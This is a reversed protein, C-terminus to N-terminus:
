DKVYGILEAIGYNGNDCYHRKVIDSNKLDAFEINAKFEDVFEESVIKGCLRCRYLKKM